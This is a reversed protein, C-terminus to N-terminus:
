QEAAMRETLWADFAIMASTYPRSKQTVLYFSKSLPLPIDLPIMLEGQEIEERVMSPDTLAVGLGNTAANAADLGSSFSINGQSPMFLTDSLEFWDAWEEPRKKVQLLRFKMLDVPEEVREQELLVPACVPVLYSSRLLRSDVGAWQGEGFYIAMDVDAVNFDVESMSSQIDLEIDPHRNTFDHFRPLLWRDLFAPAVAITLEGAAQGSVARKTAVEIHMFAGSVSELYAQGVLTLNIKRTKREFLPMGLYEELSKVQHSVASPTVFLEKAAAQFSGTRGAAEFAQLAKLPPIRNICWRYM